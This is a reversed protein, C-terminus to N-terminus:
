GEAQISLSTAMVLHLVKSKPKNIRMLNEQAWQELKNLDRQIADWGEHTNVAGCLKTDDVCKRLTCEIEVTRTM